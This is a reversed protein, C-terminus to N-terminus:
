MQELEKLEQRVKALKKKHFDIENSVTVPVNMGYRTAQVEM